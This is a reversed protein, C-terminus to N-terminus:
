DFWVQIAVTNGQSVIPLTTRVTLGSNRTFTDEVARSLGYPLKDPPPDTGPKAVFCMWGTAVDVRDVVIQGSETM